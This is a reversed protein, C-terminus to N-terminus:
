SLSRQSAGDHVSCTNVDLSEQFVQKVGSDGKFLALEARIQAVLTRKDDERSPDVSADAIASLLVELAGREDGKSSRALAEEAAKDLHEIGTYYFGFM